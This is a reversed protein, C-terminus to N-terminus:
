PLRSWQTEFHGHFKAVAELVKDVVGKFSMVVMFAGNLITLTEFQTDFREYYYFQILVQGCDELTFATLFIFYKM